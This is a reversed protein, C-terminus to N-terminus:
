FICIGFCSQSGCHPGRLVRCDSGFSIEIRSEVTTVKDSFCYRDHGNATEERTGM